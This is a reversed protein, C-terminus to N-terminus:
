GLIRSAWRMRQSRNQEELSTRINALNKAKMAEILARYHRIQSLSKMTYEGTEFGAKQLRDIADVTMGIDQMRIYGAVLSNWTVLNPMIGRSEMMTLVKEAAHAQGHSMFANLLISWTYVDPAPGDLENRSRDPSGDREPNTNNPAERWAAASKASSIMDGVVQPCWDLTELSKGFAMLFLNYVRTSHMLASVTSNGNSILHRFWNYQNTTSQPTSEMLYGTLMVILTPAPPTLLSKSDTADRSTLRGFRTSFDLIIEALPQPNFYECYVSLMKEFAKPSEQWKDTLTNNDGKEKMLFIAHLIDTGLHANQIGSQRVMGVVRSLVSYDMRLKSDNLLISYTYEDPKIGNEVMMDYIGWGTEHDRRQFTNQLIINYITLNPKMGCGLVLDFIQSDPISTNSIRGNKELMNACLSAMKPANFDGGEYGLRQLIKFALGMEGLNSLRYLFQMLTNEHLGHGIDNLVTYLTKIQIPELYTILLYISSQDLILHSRPGTQLLYNVVGYLKQIDRYEPSKKNLLYHSIIFNICDSVVQNPPYPAMYTASLVKLAANPYKDLVTCMLEPWLKNKQATPFVEWLRRLAISSEQQILTKLSEEATCHRKANDNLEALPNYYHHRAELVAFRRSWEALIYSRHGPFWSVWKIPGAPIKFRQVLHRDYKLAQRRRGPPNKKSIGRDTKSGSDIKEPQNVSPGDRHNPIGPTASKSLSSPEKDVSADNVSTFAPEDLTTDRTPARSMPGEREYLGAWMEGYRENFEDEPYWEEQLTAIRTKNSGLNDSWSLDTCLAPDKSRSQRARPIPEGAEVYFGHTVKQNLSHGGVSQSTDHGKVDQNHSPVARTSFHARRGKSPWPTFVRPALFPLIPLEFASWRANLPAPKLPM